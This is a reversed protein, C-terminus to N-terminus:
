QVDGAAPWPQAVEQLMRADVRAYIKTTEVSQHRLLASIVEMPTDDRLMNTAASHRFLHAAPLGDAKIGFRKIAARAAHSVTYQTIPRLPPPISVFVNECDVVPRAHLIYDRIANGVDQPLPLATTRRSKGSVRIVAENWDIDNLQLNAVDGARLALRALLLLIAHDRMGMPTTRDCSEIIREIDERPLHRPLTSFKQRVVTPVADVLSPRCRGEMSLFRLYMRLATTELAVVERSAAEARQQVINRILTANYQAPDDGLLAILVQMSRCYSQITGNEIGRYRRLWIQFDSLHQRPERNGSAPHPSQAIGASILYDVFMRIQSGSRKSGVFRSPRSFFHPHVCTCDHTLFRDVICDDVDALAVEHLYLWVIFHRNIKRYISIWERKYGQALLTQTFDEVVGGGTEVEPPVRSGGTEMLFGLFRYLAWGAREINKCCGRPVSCDCDHKLFQHVVRIDLAEIENATAWTMLHQVSRIHWGIYQQSHGLAQLHAEYSQVAERDPGDGAKPRATNKIMSSV